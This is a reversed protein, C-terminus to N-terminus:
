LLGEKAKSIFMDILPRFIDLQQLLLTHSMSSGKWKFYGFTQTSAINLYYIGEEEDKDLFYNFAQDPKDNIYEYMETDTKFHRWAGDYMQTYFLILKKEEVGITSILENSDLEKM